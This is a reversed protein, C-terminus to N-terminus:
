AAAGFARLRKPAHNKRRLLASAQAFGPSAVFSPPTAESLSLQFNGIKADLKESQYFKNRRLVKV